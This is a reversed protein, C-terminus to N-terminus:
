FIYKYRKLMELMGLREGMEGGRGWRRNGHGLMGDFRGAGGKKGVYM